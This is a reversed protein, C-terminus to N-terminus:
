VRMSKYTNALMREATLVLNVPSYDRLHQLRSAVSSAITSDSAVQRHRPLGWLLSWSEDIEELGNVSSDIAEYKAWVGPDIELGNAKCKELM